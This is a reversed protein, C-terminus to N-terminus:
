GIVGLERGIHRFADIANDLQTRTHAASIQTHIRAEGKPVVPFSFGVVFIGEALLREAMEAALKADGLMVPIIPHDAGALNFGAETMQARFYQSNDHLKRRLDDSEALMDLVKCTTAAIM